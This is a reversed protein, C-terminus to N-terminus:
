PLLTVEDAGFDWLTRLRVGRPIPRLNGDIDANVGIPAEEGGAACPPGFPQAATLAPPPITYNSCRVGRDIAGSTLAAAVTRQLHYDGDLALDTPALTVDLMQPDRLAVSVTMTASPPVQLVFLPDAGVINGNQAANNPFGIMPAGGAPITTNTEDSQRIQANTFLNFRSHGFTKGSTASEIEFDVYGHSTLTPPVTTLDPTFAENQWFINNFMVAPDAFTAAGAGIVAQYAPSNGHAFLGAGTWTTSGAYTSTSVNDAVTNNVLAVNSSDGLSLGGGGDAAGNAVIMNNRVLIRSGQANQIWIGGGDDGAMNSQILNRLVSV